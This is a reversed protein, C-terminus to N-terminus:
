VNKIENKNKMLIKIIWIFNLNIFSVIEGYKFKFPYESPLSYIKKANKILHVSISFNM